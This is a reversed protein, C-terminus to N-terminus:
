RDLSSAMLRQESLYLRGDGTRQVIHAYMLAHLADQEPDNTNGVLAGPLAVLLSLPKLGLDHATKANEISIANHKRFIGVVQRIARRKQWRSLLIAMVVVLAVFILVILVVAKTYLV